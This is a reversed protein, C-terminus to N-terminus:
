ARKIGKRQKFWDYIDFLLTFIASLVKYGFNSVRHEKEWLTLLRDEERYYADWEDESATDSPRPNEPVVPKPNRWEERKKPDLTIRILFYIAFLHEPVFMLVILIKEKITTNKFLPESKRTM